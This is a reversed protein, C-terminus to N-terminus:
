RGLLAVMKLLLMQFIDSLTAAPIRLPRLPVVFSRLHSIDDLVEERKSELAKLRARTVELERDLRARM